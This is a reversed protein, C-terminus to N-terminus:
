EGTIKIVDGDIITVGSKSLIAILTSVHMESERAEWGLEDKCFKVLQAKTFGGSVLLDGTQILLRHRTQVFPNIGKRLMELAVGIANSRIIKVAIERAENGLTMSLLENKVAIKVRETTRVQPERREDDALSKASEEWQAKKDDIDKSASSKISKQRAQRHRQILDQVDVLGKIRELSDISAPGCDKYSACRMCHVSEATYVSPSGFCGPKNLMDSM